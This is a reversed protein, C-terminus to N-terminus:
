GFVLRVKVEIISCHQNKKFNLKLIFETGNRDYGQINESPNSAAPAADKNTTTHKSGEMETVPRHRKNGM